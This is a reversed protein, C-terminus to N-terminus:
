ASASALRDTSVTKGHAVRTVTDVESPGVPRFDARVVAPKGGGAVGVGASIIKISIIVDSRVSLADM